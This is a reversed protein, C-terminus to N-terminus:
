HKGKTQSSHYGAYSSCIDINGRLIPGIPHVTECVIIYVPNQGTAANKVPVPNPPQMPEVKSLTVFRSGNGHNINFLGMVARKAKQRNTENESKNTSVGELVMYRIGNRAMMMTETKTQIILSFDFITTLLAGILMTGFALEIVAQGKKNDKGKKALRSIKQLM